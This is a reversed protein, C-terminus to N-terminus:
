IFWESEPNFGTILPQPMYRMLTGVKLLGAIILILGAMLTALVLGDFGYKLLIAYVIPIFAGTPGGIQYRSGGLASILFGAIIAATYGFLMEHRHWVLADWASPWAGVAGSLVLIFYGLAITGFLPGFLFFPRFGLRFLACGSRVDSRAAGLAANDNQRPLRNM